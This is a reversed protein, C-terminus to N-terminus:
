VRGEALRRRRAAVDFRHQHIQVEEYRDEDLQQGVYRTLNFVKEKDNRSCHRGVWECKNNDYSSEWDEDGWEDNLYAVAQEALWKGAAPCVSKGIQAIPNAGVPILGDWGMVTAVEGVTVPRNHVPHIQRGASSHITPYPRLWNLRHISHMSFPMDSTRYKYVRQWRKPMAELYFKALLNLDWGNPLNPVCHKEEDTLCGYTDFTYDVGRKSWLDGEHVERDQMPGLIDWCTNYYPSITPPTVNFNKNNRYAVFFYRKRQQANGFAAANLMIHAIRYGKPVFVEDRLYDLLPRGVSYAQQVSEWIVIDAKVDVAYNCLDHIDQTQEAWPGHVSGDYGATICSFGTCRPNGYIFPIDHYSPWDKWSPRNVFPTKFVQECTDGGFGHTELQCEVDCVKKVGHTFGGAFVHVGLATTMIIV